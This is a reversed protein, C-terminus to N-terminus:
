VTKKILAALELGASETLHVGDDRYLFGKQADSYSEFLAHFDVVTAGVERAIELQLPYIYESIVGVPIGLSNNELVEPSTSIVIEVDPNQEKYSNILTLYDRKYVESARDWKKTDNTGLMIIVLDADYALSSSYFDGYTMYSSYAYPGETTNAFETVSTGGAGFNGVEFDAGLLESLLAPYCIDEYGKGGSTLSDGVCAIKRYHKSAASFSLSLCESGDVSVGVTIEATGGAKMFELTLLDGSVTPMVTETDSSSVTYTIDLGHSDVYDSLVIERLNGGRGFYGKKVDPIDSIKEPLMTWKAFIEIEGSFNDEIVSGVESFFEDFYWGEFRYGPKEPILLSIDAGMGYVYEEPLGECEGGDLEYNINYSEPSFSAYLVIDGSPTEPLTATLAEDTFWGDFIYHKKEPSPLDTLAFEGYTYSSPLPECKGGNLVFGLNYACPTWKAYLTVSDTLASEASLPSTLAADLFWGDFTYHERTPTVSLLASVEGELVESPAGDPNHGGSLEYSVSLAKAEPTSETCSALMLFALICIISVLLHRSKM